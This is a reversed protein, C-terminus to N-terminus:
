KLIVNTPGLLTKLEELQESQEAVYFNQNLLTKSKTKENYLVVPINGPTRLLIEKLKDQQEFQLDLRLYLRKTEPEVALELQKVILSFKNRKEIKGTLLFVKETQLLTSFRQYEQPFITVDLTASADAGELFAMLDGKKTRIEKIKKVYLLVTALQGEKLLSVPTVHRRQALQKFADTPYGSIYSGLYYAEQELLQNPSMALETDEKEQKPALLKFLEVNNGSLEINNFLKPYFALMQSRSQNFEDFAGAYILAEILEKKLFRKDIRRMFNELDKFYGQQKRQKLIENVFNGPLGKINKLGFYIGGNKLIFNAQSQNISPLYIAIQKQKLEALYRRITEPSGNNLLATYFAAPYYVKLYALEVALKSYAVAHSRNFGYNSFKEIYEYVQVATQKDIRKHMAGTIFQQKLQAIQAAKKASIARRLIDAQSLSFGGMESVVQMVQEQYVIIGYTKALIKALIPSPYSIPKQGHKRAIFENINDMPGPRFLANAAVIDEFSSPQLKVLVNKIGNSEFQFIGDTKAQQFLRLVQPDNLNIKTIDFDNQYNYKVFRIADDLITLNRLGLLDMKLLGVKEVQQKAFQTLLLGDSSLQVACVDSLPRDSLVVGAAHTSFHRPLGELHQATKFILQNTPNNKIFKQLLPHTSCTTLNFEKVQNSIQTLIKSWQGQSKVDQGLVRTVDRIVQKASLTGFTIIQAMKDHGYKQHVYEIVENRRRDPLDLDIDHIQQRQENLFREFLLGYALPDVDTIFLCYAVLSGAASGRGPGIRIQKEHAFNTLDWVILFYNDFGMQHITALETALRQQYAAIDNINNQKARIKLGEQCLKALYAQSNLGAPNTFKPLRVPSFTLDLEINQIIKAINEYAAVLNKQECIGRVEAPTHLYHLGHRNTQLLSKALIKQEKIARLVMVDFYNDAQAYHVPSAYVLPCNTDLSLFKLATLVQDSMNASVGLYLSDQDLLSKLQELWQKAAQRQEFQIVKTLPNNQTPLIVYLDHLFPAIEQLTLVSNTNLENKQTMKLSSLKLLNHYGQNNKALFVLENTQASHLSDGLQLTLGIIPKLDMRKAATYFDLAAYMVNVDTLVVAQYGLRKATKLYTEIDLSSQLLSYCSLVQLPAYM